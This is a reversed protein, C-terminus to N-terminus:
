KPAPPAQGSLYAILDALDQESLEKELGEPMLSKGTGRLADLESRLITQEKGEQGRLTISTGTEAALLGTLVRGDATIAAYEVFKDEVARNPDLIATWLAEPSKNSLAALDPGVAHGVGELRHCAACKQRFLVHGRAADGSMTLVDRYRDLVERRGASSSEAFLRAARRAISKDRHDLLRRRATANIQGPPIISKELSALLAEQWAARSLLADLVRARLLPSYGPWGAVLRKAAEADTDPVSALAEVAAMQVRPSYRPALPAALRDLEAPRARALLQIAAIIDEDTVTM